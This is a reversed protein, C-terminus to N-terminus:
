PEERSEGRRQQFPTSEVIEEILTSFRYRSRRLKKTIDDVACKDYFELGRGLAYTLMKETLCRAFEEKKTEVLIRRM